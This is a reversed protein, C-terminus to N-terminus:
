AERPVGSDLLNRRVGEANTLPGLNTLTFSAADPSRERRKYNNVSGERSGERFEDVSTAATSRSRARDMFPGSDDSTVSPSRDFWDDLLIPDAANAGSGPKCSAPLKLGVKLDNRPSSFLRIFM